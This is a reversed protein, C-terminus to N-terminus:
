VELSQMWERLEAFIHYTEQPDTESFARDLYSIFADVEEPSMLREPYYWKNNEMVGIYGTDSRGIPVRKNVFDTYRWWWGIYPIRKGHDPDDPDDSSADSWVDVQANYLDNVLEEKSLSLLTERSRREDTGSRLEEAIEEKAMNNMLATFTKM